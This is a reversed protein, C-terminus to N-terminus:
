RKGAKYKPKESRSALRSSARADPGLATIASLSSWGQKGVKVHNGSKLSVSYIGDLHFVLARGGDTTKVYVAGTAQSWSDTSLKTYSGDILSMSYIGTWCFVIARGTEPDYVSASASSWGESSIERYKGLVLDVRYVGDRHLVIAEDGLPDYLVNVTKEWDDSTMEQYEGKEISFRYLGFNHFVILNDPQKPPHVIGAAGDWTNWISKFPEEFKECQEASDGYRLRYIGSSHFCLVEDPRSQITVRAEDWYEANIKVTSGDAGIGYVGFTNFALAVWNSSNEALATGQLSSRMKLHKCGRASTSQFIQHMALQRAAWGCCALAALISASLNFHM